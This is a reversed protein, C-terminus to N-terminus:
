KNTNVKNVGLRAGNEELFVSNSAMTLAMDIRTAKGAYYELRQIKELLKEETNFDSLKIELRAFEDYAVVSVRSLQNDVDFTQIIKTVFQKMKDFNAKGIGSSTDLLFAVDTALVSDCVTFIM